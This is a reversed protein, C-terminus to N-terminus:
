GYRVQVRQVLGLLAQKVAGTSPAKVLAWGEGEYGAARPMGVKPTRLEVLADGAAEIAAPLGHVEAVRDGRGQGRFFAAGCAWKRPRPTFRDFAILECWDDVFNTEHALGMMPMIHVGPPRAGVEGVVRENADTLFWEMHTLATSAEPSAGAFLAQLAAENTPHFDTWPAGDQERPLLVCYQMWANELVELPTPFYRTGSRWVAKGAITVTECTHERGRVFQEVQVPAEASPSLGMRPLADVDDASELRYTSRSGLGAPPKAILPYGLRRAVARVDDLSTALDSRAVSVGAARLVRKMEDKDRFRRAHTLGMGPIGALERAQALPLQLQELAGTLRDIPAVARALFRCAEALQAGDLSNRVRYHEGHLHPKLAGPIAEVPDESIVSVALGDLKAFGAVYRNTNELFKPAVFVLHRM